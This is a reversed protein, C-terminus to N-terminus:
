HGDVIVLDETRNASVYCDIASVGNKQSPIRTFVQHWEEPIQKTLSLFPPPGAAIPATPRSRPRYSIVQTV